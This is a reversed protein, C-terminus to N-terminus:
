GPRYAVAEVQVLCEWDLFETMMTTRAPYGQTFQRRYVENMKPFDGANRLLVTTRVVDDLAAGAAGLTRRLNRFCQETQEEVGGPWVGEEARFGAHHSTFIYDGAVVCSSFAFGSGSNLDIRRVTTHSRHSADDRMDIGRIQDELGQANQDESGQKDVEKAGAQHPGQEMEDFEERTLGFLIDDYYRGDMYVSRRRRGEETFGLKRHLRISEENIELCASNAKQYRREHFGYRLLIRVAEEAYGRQRHPRYIRVGFSFKGNKDDRSHLTIGGVLEGALTEISYIIFGDTDKCDAYKETWAQAMEPSAPLEVGLNMLRIGQTDTAEQYIAEWDQSRVPRLRIKDGQWFYGGDYRYDM